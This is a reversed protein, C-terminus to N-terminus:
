RFRITGGVRPVRRVFDERMLVSKENVDACNQIIAHTKGSTLCKKVLNKCNRVSDFFNKLIPSLLRKSQGEGGHLGRQFREEGCIGDSETKSSKMFPKVSTEAFQM